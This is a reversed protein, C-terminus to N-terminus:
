WSKSRIITYGHQNRDLLIHHDVYNSVDEHAIIFIQSFTKKMADLVEFIGQKRADDSSSICEDMLLSYRDAMVRSDLISQTFALRLAILFQDQTGGSFIEREKYGGAELSHVRFKLDETIEFDSYRDNTLTPLIQNIVFRAHPIVKNRLDRSTESFQNLLLRRVEVERELEKVEEHITPYADYDQKLIELDREIQSVTGRKNQIDKDVRNFEEELSNVNQRVADHQAKSYPLEGISAPQSRRIKELEEEKSKVQALLSKGRNSPSSAKLRDLRDRLSNTVAELGQISRNGTVSYLKGSIVNLAQEVEGSSKFGYQRLQLDAEDQITKV